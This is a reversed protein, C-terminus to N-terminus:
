LTVFHQLQRAPTGGPELYVTERPAEESASFALRRDVGAASLALSACVPCQRLAGASLGRVAALVVIGRSVMELM